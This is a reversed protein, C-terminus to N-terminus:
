VDLDSTDGRTDKAKDLADNIKRVESIIDTKKAKSAGGFLFKLVLPALALILQTILPM